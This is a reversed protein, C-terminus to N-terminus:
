ASQCRGPSLLVMSYFPPPIDREDKRAEATRNRIRRNMFVSAETESDAVSSSGGM